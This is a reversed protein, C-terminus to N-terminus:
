SRTCARRKSSAARAEKTRRPRLRARRTSTRSNSALPRAHFDVVAYPFGDGELDAEADLAEGHEQPFAPHALGREELGQRAQHGGLAPGIPAKGGFSPGYAVQGLVQGEEGM